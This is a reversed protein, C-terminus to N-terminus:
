STANTKGKLYQTLVISTFNIYLKRQMQEETLEEGDFTFKWKNNVRDVTLDNTLNICTWKCQEVQDENEAFMCLKFPKSKM